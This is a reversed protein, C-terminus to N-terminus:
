EPLELMNPATVGEAWLGINQVTCTCTIFVQPTLVSNTLSTYRGLVEPRSRHNRSYLIVSFNVRPHMTYGSVASREICRIAWNQPDLIINESRCGVIYPRCAYQMTITKEAASQVFLNKRRHPAYTFSPGLDEYNTHAKHCCKCVAL